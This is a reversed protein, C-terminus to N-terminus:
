AKPLGTSGSTYIIYALNEPSLPAELNETAHKTILHQATDFLVLQRRYRDFKNQLSTETIFYQPMVTM